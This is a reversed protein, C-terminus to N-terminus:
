GTGPIPGPVAPSAPATAADAPCGGCVPPADEELSRPRAALPEPRLRWRALETDLWAVTARALERYYATAAAHELQHAVAAYWRGLHDQLFGVLAEECVRAPDDWGQEVAVLQRQLLVACFELEVGLHDVQWRSDDPLEFGFAAHFGAIDALARQRRFIDPEYATEHPPCAVEGSFLRNFDAEVETRASATVARALPDLDVRHPAGTLEAARETDTVVARLRDRQARDPYAYGVALTQYSLARLVLDDTTVTATM